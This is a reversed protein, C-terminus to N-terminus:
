PLSRAAAAPDDADEDPSGHARLVANRWVMSFTPPRRCVDAEAILTTFRRATSRRSVLHADVRAEGQGAEQLAACASRVSLLFAAPDCAIRIGLHPALQQDLTTPPSGPLQIHLAAECRTRADLMNLSLLRGEGTLAADETIIVPWVQAACYLALFVSAGTPARWSWWLRWPPVHVTRRVAWWQLPFVSLVCAMVCPYFWGVVHWSFAHFGVATGLALARSGRGRALLGFVVVLEFLVAAAQAGYLWTGELWPSQLLAAGSLWELNLKLTGAFFYFLVVLVPLVQRRAPVWLLAGWLLWPMYHYNGMLLYSQLQLSAKFALTAVALWPALAATRRVAFAAASMAGLTGYLVLARDAGAGSELWRLADCDPMFPWCMPPDPGMVARRLRTNEAWFLASLVHTVSLAAAYARFWPYRRLDRVVRAFPGSM